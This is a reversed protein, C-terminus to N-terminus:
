KGAPTEINPQTQGQLAILLQKHWDKLAVEWQAMEPFRKKVSEPIPPLAAVLKLSSDFPVGAQLRKFQNM